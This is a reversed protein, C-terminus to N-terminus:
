KNRQALLYNLLKKDEKRPYLPFKNGDIDLEFSNYEVERGDEAKFSKVEYTVEFKEM